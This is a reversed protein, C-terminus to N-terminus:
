RKAYRLYRAAVITVIGNFICFVFILGLDRWRNGYQMNLPKYFDDGIRYQCYQCNSTADGNQLYGGFNTVFTGAWQQCTQGAPPNFVAFEDDRCQINLGRLETVLLGSMVRTYPTLNYLWSRWFKALSHYPITVGCYTTLIIGIPTNTLVAIQITPSLAGIAQALSVGFLEVGIIMLLFYGSGAKGSSGQGLRLPFYMLVWYFVACVISWPMEALLQGSAFV